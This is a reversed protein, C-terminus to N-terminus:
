LIHLDFHQLLNVYIIKKRLKEQKQKKLGFQLAFKHM